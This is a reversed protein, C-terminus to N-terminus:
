EINHEKLKKSIIAALKELTIKKLFLLEIFLAGTVAYGYFLPANMKGSEEDITLVFIKEALLM